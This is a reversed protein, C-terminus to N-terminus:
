KIDEVKIADKLLAKVNIKQTEIENKLKARQRFKWWPLKNLNARHEAVEDLILYIKDVIKEM